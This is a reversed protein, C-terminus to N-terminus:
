APVDLSVRSGAAQPVNRRSPPLHDFPVNM